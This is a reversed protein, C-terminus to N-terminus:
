QLFYFFDKDENDPVYQKRLTNLYLITKKDNKWITEILFDLVAIRTKRKDIAFENSDTIDICVSESRLIPEASERFSARNLDLYLFIRSDNKEKESPFYNLIIDVGDEDNLKNLYEYWENNSLVRQEIVAIGIFEFFTKIYEKEAAYNTPYIIRIKNCTLNSKM